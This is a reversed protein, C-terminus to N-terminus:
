MIKFIRPDMSMTITQAVTLKLNRVPGQLSRHLWSRHRDMGDVGFFLNLYLRM